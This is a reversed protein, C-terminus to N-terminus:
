LDIGMESQDTSAGSLGIEASLHFAKMQGIAHAKEAKDVIVIEEL